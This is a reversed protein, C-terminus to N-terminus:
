EPGDPDDDPDDPGNKSNHGDPGNQSDHGNFGETVDCRFLGDPDNFGDVLMCIMATMVMMFIMDMMGTVIVMVIM